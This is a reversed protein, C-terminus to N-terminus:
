RGLSYDQHRARALDLLSGGLRTKRVHAAAEYDELERLKLEQRSAAQERYQLRLYTPMIQAQGPAIHFREAETGFEPAAFPPLRSGAQGEGGQEGAAGGEEEEDSDVLPPTDPAEHDRWTDAGADAYVVRGSRSPTDERGYDWSGDPRRVPSRASAGAGKSHPRLLQPGDRSAPRSGRYGDTGTLAGEDLIGDLSADLQGVVRDIVSSKGRGSQRILAGSGTASTKLFKGDAEEEERAHAASGGDVEGEQEDDEMLFDEEPGEGGWLAANAEHKRQAHLSDALSSLKKAARVVTQSTEDLTKFDHPMGWRQRIKISHPHSPPPRADKALRMARGPERLPVGDNLISVGSLMKTSYFKKVPPKLTGAQTAKTITKYRSFHKDM